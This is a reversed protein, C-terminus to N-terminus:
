WSIGKKRCYEVARKFRVTDFATMLYLFVAISPKGDDFANYLQSTVCKNGFDGM